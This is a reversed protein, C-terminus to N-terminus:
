RMAAGTAGSGELWATSNGKEVLDPPKMCGPSPSWTSPRTVLTLSSEIAATHRQAREAKFKLRDEVSLRM